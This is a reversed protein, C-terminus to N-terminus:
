PTWSGSTPTGPSQTPRPNVDVPYPDSPEGSQYAKMSPFDTPLIGIAACAGNTYGNPSYNPKALHPLTAVVTAPFTAQEASIQPKDGRLIDYDFAETLDGVNNDPDDSPGLDKQGLTVLGLDRGRKEDPLQALPVLGFLENIFKIVSGHESYHHSIKGSAAYPSILITPIRPGAALPSGDAFTNRRQPSVHDYFGDTEDYTIIIASEPWYPSNAIDNIAKAAFAESIQQDSYAPHDDNGIFAHQIAPTPDVPVLGDNNDYGGRLYFVGGGSPLTRGEVAQFFDKAGHLNSDLVQPNDALYGFYQPGNHHLVYGTNLGPNNTPNPTTSNQPEFPDSTDNANFGQQYWGWNVAPNDSAITTIDDQVDLLDATPNPDSAIITKINHGMFSLPQTAFTLDLTPNAPNEDFNFPPKVASHDLNSGPFPGPDSVIPVFANSTAPMVNSGFSAGLPNPFAPNAYTTTPGENNHLAWQTQGSQGAILAIANPTSPGVITQRFNDFLVFNKAWHWMFPITDCDIHGIDTEAKQKQALSIATPAAGTPTVINGYADTTLGEQDMAYRDSAAAGTTPDVHLSNAMGQHSHDVSIEDAPYIPVIQGSATKVAQPMLFPSITVPKLSTDLYKQVFSPTENAPTGGQPAHFLGNAGPFTGFYHDFSENEHFIVFVYKVKRRLLEIKENLSLRDHDNDGYREGDDFKFGDHQQGDDRPWEDQAFAM